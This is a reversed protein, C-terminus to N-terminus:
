KYALKVELFFSIYGSPTSPQRVEVQIPIVRINAGGQQQPRSQQVNLPSNRGEVQIPIVRTNAPQTKMPVPSQPSQPQNASNMWPMAQTKNLMASAPQFQPQQPSQQMVVPIYISGPPPQHMQAPTPSARV